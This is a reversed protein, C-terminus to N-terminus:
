RYSPWNFNFIEQSSIRDALRSGIVPTLEEFELNSILIFPKNQDIRENILWNIKEFEFDSGIHLGLENLVLLDYSLYRNLVQLETVDKRHFTDKIELFIRTISTFHCSKLFLEMIHNMAASALHNKGTGVDGLFIMSSGTDLHDKFKAAWTRISDKVQRMKEVDETTFQDKGGKKMAELTTFYNIFGADQFKPGLGSGDKLRQIDAERVNKKIQIEREARKRRSCVECYPFWWFPTGDTFGLDRSRWSYGSEGPRSLKPETECDCESCM